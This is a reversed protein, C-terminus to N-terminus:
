PGKGTFIVDAGRLKGASDPQLIVITRADVQNQNDPDFTKRTYIWRPAKPDKTDISEPKGIKGEIEEATAGVVYGQFLGRQYGGSPGCAAVGLAVIALAAARTGKQLM